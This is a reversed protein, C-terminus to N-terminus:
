DKHSARNNLLQNGWNLILGTGPKEIWRRMALGATVTSFLGLMLAMPLFLESGNTLKQAIKLSASNTLVQILYISYSADGVMLLPAFAFSLKAQQELTILAVLLVGCALISQNSLGITMTTAALLLRLWKEGQAKPWPKLIIFLSVGVLFSGILGQGAVACIVLSASLAIEFWRKQHLMHFQTIILAFALYFCAEYYLTWGVYVYGGMRGFDFFLTQAFREWNIAPIHNLAGRPMLALSLIVLTATALYAPYLRAFRGLLFSRRSRPREAAAMAIVYGSLIFFLIVGLGGAAFWHVEMKGDQYVHAGMELHYLVVGLAAIARLWQLSLLKGGAQEFIRIAM